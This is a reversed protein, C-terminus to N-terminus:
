KILNGRADFKLVTGGGAPPAESPAVGAIRDRYKVYDEYTKIGKSQLERKEMFDM